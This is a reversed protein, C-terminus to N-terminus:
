VIRKRIGWIPVAGIGGNVPQILCIIERDQKALWAVLEHYIREDEAAEIAAQKALYTQVQEATITSQTTIREPNDIGLRLLLHTPYESFVGEFGCERNSCRVAYQVPNSALQDMHADSGCDGCIFKETM